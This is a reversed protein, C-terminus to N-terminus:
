RMSALFETFAADPALVVDALGAAVGKEGLFTAAQTDRVAQVDMGRNRAVTSVFLEGMANIESQFRELAEESLPVAPQGDAKRDGYTIPTVRIGDRELAQSVDVHMVIVGISGTGGTRPVAIGGASSALAYAASFADEELIAAIPKESRAEYIRDALDFCGAVTGGPSDVHLVIGRVGDDGLAQELADAIDGYFTAGPWWWSGMRGPLLVGMIRIVAVDGAMTLCGPGDRESPEGFLAHDDVSQALLHRILAGREPNLALPCGILKQTLTARTMIRGAQADHRECTTRRDM